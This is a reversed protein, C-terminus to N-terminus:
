VVLAEAPRRPTHPVPEAMGLRAMLQIRSPERVGAERHLRARLEDMEAYDQLAQNMPHVAVGAATAALHMRLLARGANVQDARTDTATAFLVFAQASEAQERAQETGRKAFSGEPDVAGKRSLFFSEVFWRAIGNIGNQRVSIGDRKQEREERSFRFWEALERNRARSSTEVAMAEGCIEALVARRQPEAVWRLQAGHRDSQRLVAERAGAPLPRDDWTRKNTVRATVATFLPDARMAGAGNLEIQAVPREDIADPAFAGEPFLRTSYGIGQQALAMELLELFAGQSALIHRGIPDAQPLLRSRDVHLRIQGERGLDVRWPQTNHSSPALIAWSIARLMPDDLTDAPGEWAALHPAVGALARPTLPPAFLVATSAMGTIRIFDRRKM